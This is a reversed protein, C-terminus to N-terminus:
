EYRLAELPEIRAAKRVPLLSALVGAAVFISIVIALTLSDNPEVGFLLSKLLRTSGLALPVGVVIGAAVLLLSERLFLRVVDSKQAGIAFRVGIERTRRSVAYAILGYIGISCLLTALGSFLTSLFSLVRESSMGRDIQEQLERVNYIPVTRDVSRITSKIDAIARSGEFRRGCLSSIVRFVQSTQFASLCPPM